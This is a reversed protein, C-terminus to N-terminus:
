GGERGSVLNCSFLNEYVPGERTLVSSKLSVENVNMEGIKLSSNERIFNILLDRNKGTKVRGITLHLHNGKDGAKVNENVHNMLRTFHDRGEKVGFWLTSIRSGRGFYGLGNVTSMFAVTVECAKKLGKKIAHLEHEKVNGLFKLTFHLNEPEVFKVDAGLEEIQRQVGLIKDKLKRECDVAIFCRM